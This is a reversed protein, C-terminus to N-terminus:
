FVIFQIFNDFFSKLARFISDICIAFQSANIMLFQQVESLFQSLKSDKGPVM